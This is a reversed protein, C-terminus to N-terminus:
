PEPSHRIVALVVAVVAALLLEALRVIVALQVLVAELVL